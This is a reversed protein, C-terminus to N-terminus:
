VPPGHAPQDSDRRQGCAAKEIAEPEAIGLELIVRKFEEAPECIASPVLAANMLCLPRLGAPADASMEGGCEPCILKDAM